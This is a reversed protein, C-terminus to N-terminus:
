DTAAALTRPTVFRDLRGSRLHLDKWDDLAFDIVVFGATPLGERLQERTEVDGSAILGLALKHIGPNHGIMLLSHVSSATKAVIDFLADPEAEYIKDEFRVPPPKAFAKAVLEWTERTRKAPSVVAQEPVLGHRAMYAGMIPAEARGRPALPRDRDRMAGEPQAAKAHRLLMLRRM